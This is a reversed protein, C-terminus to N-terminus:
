RLICIAWVKDLAAKEAEVGIRGAPLGPVGQDMRIFPIGTKAELSMAVSLVEGISASSLNAINLSEVTEKVMNREFIENAM